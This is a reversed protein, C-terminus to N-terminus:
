VVSAAAELPDSGVGGETAEDRDGEAGRDETRGAGEHGGGEQGRGKRALASAAM